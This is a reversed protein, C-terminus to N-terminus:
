FKPGKAWVPLRGGRAQHKQRLELILTSALAMADNRDLEEGDCLKQLAEAVEVEVGDLAPLSMRVIRCFYGADMPLAKAFRRRPVNCLVGPARLIMARCPLRTRRRDAAVEAKPQNENEQRNGGSYRFRSALRSLVIIVDAIESGADAANDDAALTTQGVFRAVSGRRETPLELFEWFSKATVWGSEDMGFRGILVDLFPNEVQREAQVEAATEWLSEDLTISEGAM